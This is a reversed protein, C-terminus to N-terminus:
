VATEDRSRFARQQSLRKRIRFMAVIASFGDRTTSLKSRREPYRHENWLVPVEEIMYGLEQVSSLFELDFFWTNEETALMVAVAQKNLVKLPCQSDSTNVGVITRALINFFYSSGMRWWERDPMISEPHLRSGVVIDAAGSGVRYFSNIIERPEVSLDADTFGVINGAAVAFGARIARGKGREELRLTHVRPDNISEASAITGDTSSNDVVLIDWHHDSQEADIATLLTQLTERIVPAENYTPIILTHKM